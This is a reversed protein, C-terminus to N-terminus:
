NWSITDLKYKTKEEIM